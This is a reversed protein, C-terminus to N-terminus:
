SKEDSLITHILEKVGQHLYVPHYDFLKINENMNHVRDIQINALQGPTVPPNKLFLNLIYAVPRLMFLPVTLLLRKVKLEKMLLKVTDIYSINDPGAITFTGKIRKEICEQVINCVDKVHIFQFINKGNGLVPVVPLKIIIRILKSLYKTDGPGYIITPRLISHNEFKGVEEEALKKTATYTDTLTNDANETSIYIFHKVNYQKSLEILKRTLDVNAKYMEKAPGHIM